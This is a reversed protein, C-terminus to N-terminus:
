RRFRLRSCSTLLRSCYSSARSRCQRRVQSAEVLIEDPRLQALLTRLGNSQEDDVTQGVHVHGTAADVFAVGLTRTAVDECVCLLYTAQDDRHFATGKTIVSCLERRVAQEKKVGKPKKANREKLQEPTEM